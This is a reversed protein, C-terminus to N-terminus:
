WIVTFYGHFMQNEAGETGDEEGAADFGQRGIHIADGRGVLTHRYLHSLFIDDGVADIGVVGFHQTVAAEAELHFSM